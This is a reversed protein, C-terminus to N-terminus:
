FETGEPALVPRLEDSSSMLRVRKPLPQINGLRMSAQPKPIAMGQTPYSTSIDYRPYLHTPFQALLEDWIAALGNLMLPGYTNGTWTREMFSLARREANM